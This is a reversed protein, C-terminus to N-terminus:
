RLTATAGRQTSVFFLATSKDQKKRMCHIQDQQVGKGQNRRIVVKIKAKEARAPQKVSLSDWDWLGSDGEDAKMEQEKNKGEGQFRPDRTRLGYGNM